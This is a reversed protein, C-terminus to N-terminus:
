TDLVVISPMNFLVMTEFMEDHPESIMLTANEKLNKVTMSQNKSSQDSAHAVSSFDILNVGLDKM